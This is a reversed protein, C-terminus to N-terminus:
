GSSDVELNECEVDKIYKKINDEIRSMCRKFLRITKKKIKLVLVRVIATMTM